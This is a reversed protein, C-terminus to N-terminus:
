QSMSGQNKSEYIKQYIYVDLLRGFKEGVEQLVGVYRFGFSESLHVSADSGEAIRAILSHYGLREGETVIAAKLRRGIGQGRFGEKVYITTEATNAYACRTSWESLCAWGVVAGELEAVLVPHRRDHAELWAIQEEETKPEVDFTATTTLIAENYIQTIERRSGHSKRTQYDGHEMESELPVLSRAWHGDSGLM